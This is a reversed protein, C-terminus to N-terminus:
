KDKKPKNELGPPNLGTESANSQCSQGACQSNGPDDTVETETETETGTETETETGTETSTETETETETETVEVISAVQTGGGGGGGSSQESLSQPVSFTFGGNGISATSTGACLADAIDSIQASQEATSVGTALIRIGDAANLCARRPVNNQQAAEAIAVVLDVIQQDRAASPAEDGLFGAALPPCAQARPVDPCDALVQAASIVQASSPTTVAAISLAAVLALALKM